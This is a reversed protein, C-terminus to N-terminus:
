TIVDLTELKCSNQVKHGYVQCKIGNETGFLMWRVFLQQSLTSQQICLWPRGLVDLHSSVNGGQCSVSPRLVLNSLPSVAWYYFLSPATVTVAVPQCRSLLKASSFTGTIGRLRPSPVM